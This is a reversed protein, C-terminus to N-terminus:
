GDRRSLRHGVVVGEGAPHPAIRLHRRRHTPEGGSEGALAIEPQGDVAAAVGGIQFRCETADLPWQHLHRLQEGRDGVCQGLFIDLLQHLQLRVRRRHAPRKDLAAHLAFEALAPLPPETAKLSICRAGGRETLHVPGFGEVAGREGAFQLVRVHGRRDFGIQALQLQRHTEVLAVVAGDGGGLDMGFDGVSQALFEIVLALGCM